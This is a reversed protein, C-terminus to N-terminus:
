RRAPIMEPAIEKDISRTLLSVGGGGVLGMWAMWAFLRAGSKPAICSRSYPLRTKWQVREVFIEENGERCTVVVELNCRFNDDSMM